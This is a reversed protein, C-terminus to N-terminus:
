FRLPTHTGNSNGSVPKSAKYYSDEKLSRVCQAFALMFATFLGVRVVSFLVLSVISLEKLGPFTKGDQNWIHICIWMCIVNSLMAVAVATVVCIATYAARGFNGLAGKRGMRRALQIFISTIVIKFVDFALSAIMMNRSDKDSNILNVSSILVGFILETGVCASGISVVSDTGM